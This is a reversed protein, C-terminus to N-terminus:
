TPDYYMTGVFNQPVRFGATYKRTEDVRLVTRDNVIGVLQVAGSEQGPFRRRSEDELTFKEIRPVFDHGLKNTYAFTCVLYVAGGEASADSTPYRSVSALVIDSAPHIGEGGTLPVPEKCAALGALAISACFSLALLRRM